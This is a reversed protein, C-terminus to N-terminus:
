LTNTCMLLYVRSLFCTFKIEMVNPSIGGILKIFKIDSHLIRFIQIGRRKIINRMGLLYLVVILMYDPITHFECVYPHSVFM